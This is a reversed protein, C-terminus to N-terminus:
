RDWIRSIFLQASDLKLATQECEGAFDLLAAAPIGHPRHLEGNATAADYRTPPIAIPVCQTDYLRKLNALQSTRNALKTQLDRSAEATLKKDSECQAQLNARLDAMERDHAMNSLNEVASHLGFAVLATLLASLAPQWYKILWMM